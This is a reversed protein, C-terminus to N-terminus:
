LLKPERKQDILELEESVSAIWDRVGRRFWPGEILDILLGAEVLRDRIWLYDSEDLHEGLQFEELLDGYHEKLCCLQYDWENDLQPVVNPGSPAARQTRNRRTALQSVGEYRLSHYSLQFTKTM